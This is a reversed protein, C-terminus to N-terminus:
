TICCATYCTSMDLREPNTALRRSKHIQQVSKSYVKSKSHIIHLTYLKAQQVAHQVATQLRPTVSRDLLYLPQNTGSTCPLRDHRCPRPDDGANSVAAASASWCHGDDAGANYVPAVCRCESTRLLDTGYRLVQVGSDRCWAVRM